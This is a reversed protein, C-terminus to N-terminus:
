TTTKRRLAAARVAEGIRKRTEESHTKGGFPNNLGTKGYMPNNKGKNSKSIKIKTEESHPKGLRGKNGLANKNGKKMESLLRRTEDSSKKGLRGLRRVEQQIEYGKMQGSLAKWAVKDKWSGGEEYLRKHELAHEEVTLEMLTNTRIRKGDKFIIKHHKHM